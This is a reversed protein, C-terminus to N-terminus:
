EVSLGKEDAFKKMADIVEQRKAEPVEKSTDAGGINKIFDIGDQKFSGRVLIACVRQLDVLEPVKATEEPQDSEPEVEPTEAAKKEAEIEAKTRRKKTTAEETAPIEEVPTEPKVPAKAIIAGSVGLLDLLEARADAGNESNVTITIM